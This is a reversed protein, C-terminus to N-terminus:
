SCGFFTIGMVHEDHVGSWIWGFLSKLKSNSNSEALLGQAAHKSGVGIYIGGQSGGRSFFFVRRWKSGLGGGEGLQIFTARAGGGPSATGGSYGPAAGSMEKASPDSSRGRMSTLSCSFSVAISYLSVVDLDSCWLDLVLAGM